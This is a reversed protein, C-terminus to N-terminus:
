HDSHQTPQKRHQHKSAFLPAEGRATLQLGYAILERQCPKSGQRITSVVL